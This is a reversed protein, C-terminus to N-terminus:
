KPPPPVLCIHCTTHGSSDTVVLVPDGRTHIHALIVGAMPQVSAHGPSQTLKVKTGSPYPGASFAGGCPGDASDKVFIPLSAGGCDTAILQYFGDPNKGSRPNNGARPINGGSPNTTPVCDVVVPAPTGCNRVTVTFSCQGHNGFSDTARCTVTTTGAPFSSGSAPSCATTAVACNDAAQPSFNVVAGCQGPDNCQTINAPCQITPPEADHVTVLFSCTVTRGSTTTATCTVNSSGIQFFSGSLPNCTVPGPVCDGSSTPSYNVTAGCESADNPVTFNPCAITCPVPQANLQQSAIPGVLVSLLLLGLNKRIISQPFPRTNNKM